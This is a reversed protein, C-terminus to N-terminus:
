STCRPGRCSPRRSGRAWADHGARYYPSLFHGSQGGPMHFIGQEEHGPSVALRESAGHADSQVRPMYSDGPLQEPGIDLWRGLAPLGLSLPHHVVLENREGWTAERPALGQKKLDEVLLAVAAALLEEYTKFRPNLLHPPKAQLLTWVPQEAQPTPYYFQPDLERCRTTIPELVLELVQRRFGRVLRYGASDVSARGGWNRVLTGLEDADPRSASSPLSLVTLFLQQWRALFLARDDLQIALMDKADATKLRKLDDRIQRARAGLDTVWPGAQMYDPSGAIRNNATWVLGDEPDEYRPYLEPTIWGDWGVTGDAWSVPSIGSDGHRRPLRGMVTWGIRGSRDGVVFNQIPIGSHPALSLASEVDRTRELDLLRFNVAGDLQAVWRVAYSVKDKQAAIVPGWITSRVTLTEDQGGRVKLVERYEEFPKWGDPTRYADPQGKRVELKVLDTTDLMSNTFAWAISGNSGVIIAPTGPLSVGTVDVTPNAQGTPQCILRMRYWTNPLRLALHMDNAVLASGSKSLRGDVAWSNSGVVVDDRISPHAAAGGALSVLRAFSFQEPTPIAPPPLVTGDLPADWDTGIPVFFDFAAPPLVTRLLDMAADQEGNEDQLFVFMALAALVSDEPLWPAPKSRLLLYEPPRARLAELGANVGEVYAEMIQADGSPTTEVVRRAVARLRHIRMSRDHPLMGAGLLESLEGAATRRMLDMQFFREQAHLFGTARAIDSREVGRVTPVGLNDREVRVPQKLRALSAEGDLLPLSARMSWWLGLVLCAIILVLFGIFYLFWRGMRKINM